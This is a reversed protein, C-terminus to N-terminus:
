PAMRAHSAICRRDKTSKTERASIKPARASSVAGPLARQCRSALLQGCSRYELCSGLTSPRRAKAQFWVSRLQLIDVVVVVVVVVTPLAVVVVVTVTVVGAAATATMVGAAVASGAAAGAAAGAFASVHRIFTKVSAGGLLKGCLSSSTVFSHSDAASPAATVDKLRLTSAGPPFAMPAGGQIYKRLSETCFYVAPRSLAEGGGRPAVLHAVLPLQPERQEDEVNRVGGLRRRRAAVAARGATTPPSTIRM